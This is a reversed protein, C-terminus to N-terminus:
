DDFNPRKLIESLLIAKGVQEPDNLMKKLQEPLKGKHAGFIPPPAQGTITPSDDVKSIDHDLHQHVRTEVQDHVSAIREGLKSSKKTLRSSDIHSKVHEAVSERRMDRKRQNARDRGELKAKLDQKKKPPQRIPEAEVEIIEIEDDIIIPEVIQPPPQPARQRPAPAQGGKQQAARREAAKRLFEEINRAM